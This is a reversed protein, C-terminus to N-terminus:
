AQDLNFQKMFEQINYMKEKFQKTEDTLAIQLTIKTILGFALAFLMDGTTIMLTFLVRETDTMPFMDGYGVSCVINFVTYISRLYCVATSETRLGNYDIWTDVDGATSVIFFFTCAMFHGLFSIFLIAKLIQIFGNFRNNKFTAEAKRFLFLARWSSIIRM